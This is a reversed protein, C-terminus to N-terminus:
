AVKVALTKKHLKEMLEDIRLAEEISVEGRVIKELDDLIRNVDALTKAEEIRKEIEDLREM